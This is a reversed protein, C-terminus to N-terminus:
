DAKETPLASVIIEDGVEPHGSLIKMGISRGQRWRTPQLVATQELEFNRTTLTDDVAAFRSALWGVALNSEEDVWVIEGIVLRSSSTPPPSYRIMEPPPPVLADESSSERGGAATGRRRGVTRTTGSGPQLLRQWFPYEEEEQEEPEAEFDEAAM